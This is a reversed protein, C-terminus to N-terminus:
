KQSRSFAHPTHLAPNKRVEVQNKMIYVLYPMPKIRATACNALVTKLVDYCLRGKKTVRFRSSDLMSKESRLLREAYNNDPRIKPNELYKTLKEFHNVVYSAAVHMPSKPAFNGLMETCHSKIENWLEKQVNQRAYLVTKFNGADRADRDSDFIKAFLLLMTYCYYGIQPDADNRNKWFPRRAHAGCGVFELSHGAFSTPQNQSSLDSQVVIPNKASSKIGLQTRLALVTGLLDGFSKRESYYFVITDKVGSHTHDGILVTTFVAKKFGNASKLSRKGGLVSQAELLINSKQPDPEELSVKLLESERQLEEETKIKEENKMELVRTNTDDGSLFDCRALQRFLELYVAVLAQAAYMFLRYIRTPSFYSAASQLTAALRVMPIGTGVVLLAIQAIAEWTVKYRAPGDEVKASQSFGTEVCQVTEVRYTINTVCLSVDFRQREQFSSTLSVINNQLENKNVACEKMEDKVTVTSPYFVPESSLNKDERTSSKADSRDPHVRKVRPPRNKKYERLNESAKKAKLALKDETDKNWEPVITKDNKGEREKKPIFGMKERLLILLKKNDQISIKANKCLEIMSRLIEFVKLPVTDKQTELWEEIENFDDITLHNNKSTENSM